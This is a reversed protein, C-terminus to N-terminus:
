YEQIVWRVRGLILEPKVDAAPVALEPFEPNASRLLLRDTAAYLRKIVAGEYPLWVAYIEGSIVKRDDRDVGVYAGDFILPEMSRGRIRVAVISPRWLAKPIFLQELPEFGTLDWAPGAGALGYVGVRKVERNGEETPALETGREEGKRRPGEGTLLWDLSVQKSKAIKRAWENPFAGRDKARSVNPRTISLFEALDAQRRWGSIEVVRAWVADFPAGRRHTDKPLKETAAM